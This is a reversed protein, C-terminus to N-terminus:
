KAQHPFKWGQFYKRPHIRFNKCAKKIFTKGPPHEPRKQHWSQAYPVKKVAPLGWNPITPIALTKNAKNGVGWNYQKQIDWPVMSYFLFLIKTSMTYNNEQLENLSVPWVGRYKHDQDKCQKIVFQTRSPTTLTVGPQDSHKNALTRIGRCVAIYGMTM